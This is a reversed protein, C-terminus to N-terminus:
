RPAVEIPNCNRRGSSMCEDAKRADIMANALWIGGGVLIVLIVVLVTNALRRDGESEIYDGRVPEKSDDM